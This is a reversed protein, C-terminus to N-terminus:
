LMKQATMCPCAPLPYGPNKVPCPLPEFKFAPSSSDATERGRNSGEVIRGGPISRRHDASPIQGSVPKSSVSGEALWDPHGPTRRHLGGFGRRKGPNVPGIGFRLGGRRRQKPM